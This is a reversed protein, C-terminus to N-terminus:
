GAGFLRLVLAPRRVIGGIVLLVVKRLGPAAPRVLVARLPTVKLGAAANGLGLKREDRTKNIKRVFLDNTAFGEVNGTWGIRADDVLIASVVDRIAPEGEDVALYIRPSSCCRMRRLRWVPRAGRILREDKDCASYMVPILVPQKRVLCGAIEWWLRYRVRLQLLHCEDLCPHRLEVRLFGTCPFPLRKSIFGKQRM